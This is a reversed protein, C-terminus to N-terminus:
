GGYKSAERGDSAERRAMCYHCSGSIVVFQSWINNLQTISFGQLLDWYVKLLLCTEMFDWLDLFEMFCTVTCVSGYIRSLHSLYLSM